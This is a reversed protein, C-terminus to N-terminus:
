KRELRSVSEIHATQPFLDVPTVSELQYRASLIKLDRALTAPHCSVYVIRQPNLRMVGELVVPECGSRPPDLLVTLKGQKLIELRASLPERFVNEVHDQIFEVNRVNNAQANRKADRIASSVSEVGVAAKCLRAAL